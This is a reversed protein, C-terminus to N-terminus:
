EPKFGSMKKHTIRRQSGEGHLNEWIKRSVPDGRDKSEQLNRLFSGRRSLIKHSDVVKNKGGYDSREIIEGEISSRRPPNVFRVSTEKRLNM